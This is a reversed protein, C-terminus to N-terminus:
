DTYCLFYSFSWIVTGSGGFSIFEINRTIIPPVISSKNNFFQARSTALQSEDNARLATFGAAIEDVSKLPNNIIFSDLRTGYADPFRVGLTNTDTQFSTIAIPVAFNWIHRAGAQNWIAVGQANYQRDTLSYRYSRIKRKRM